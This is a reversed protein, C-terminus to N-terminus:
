GSLVHVLWQPAGGRAELRTHAPGPEVHLTAHAEGRRTMLNFDTTPGDLLRCQVSAEGPFRLTDFRQALRTRVGDADLLMGNGDLLVLQRDICPFHSFPGDAHIEAISIRWRFPTEPDSPDRAIETTWGGDNAWRTRRYDARRLLRIRGTVAPRFRRAPDRSEDRRDRGHNRARPLRLGPNRLRPFRDDDGPPRRPAARPARIRLQQGPDPQDRPRGQTGHVRIRAGRPRGRNRIRCPSAEADAGLRTRSGALRRPSAPRRPRRVRRYRTERGGVHRLRAVGLSRAANGDLAMCEHPGASRRRRHLAHQRPGRADRCLIRLPTRRARRPAPTRNR